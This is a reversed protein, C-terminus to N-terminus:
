NDLSVLIFKLIRSKVWILGNIPESRVIEGFQYMGVFGNTSIRAQCMLLEQSSWPVQPSREKETAEETKHFM